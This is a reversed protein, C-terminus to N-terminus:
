RNGVFNKDDDEELNSNTVEVNSDERLLIGWFIITFNIAVSRLINEQIGWIFTIWLSMLFVYEKRRVLEKSTFHYLLFYIIFGVIGFEFLIYLYGDDVTAYGYILNLNSFTTNNGLFPIRYNLFVRSAHTFRSGLFGNIIYLITQAKGQVFNMLMPFILAVVISIIMIFDNLKSIVKEFSKNFFKSKYLVIMLIMLGISFILTRSKTIYYTLLTIFIEIFIDLSNIRQNKYCFFLILIFGVTYALQNPHNYGLGYGTAIVNLGGKFVGVENIPLYGALSSMVITFLIILKEVILIGFIKKLNTRNLIVICFIDILFITEGTNIYLIIGFSCLFFLLIWAKISYSRMALLVIFVFVEMFVFFTSLTGVIEWETNNFGYAITVLTLFVYVVFDNILKKIEM